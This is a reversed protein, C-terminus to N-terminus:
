LSYTPFATQSQQLLSHGDYLGRDLKEALWTQTKGQALLVDKIRNYKPQHIRKGM